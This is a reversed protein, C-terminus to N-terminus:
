SMSNHLEDYYRYEMKNSGHVLPRMQGVIGVGEFLGVDALKPGGLALALREVLDSRNGARRHYNRIPPPRQHSRWGIFETTTHPRARM